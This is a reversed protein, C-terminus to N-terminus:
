MESQIASVKASIFHDWAAAARHLADELVLLRARKNAPIALAIEVERWNWHNLEARRRGELWCCLNEAAALFHPCGYAEFSTSNVRNKPEEGGGSFSVDGSLSEVRLWLRASAGQARSGAQGSVANVQDAFSGAHKLQAFLRAVEPHYESELAASM